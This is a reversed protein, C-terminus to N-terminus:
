RVLVHMNLRTAPDRMQQLLRDVANPDVLDRLAKGEHLIRHTLTLYAFEDAHIGDITQTDPVGLGALDHFNYVEVGLERGLRAMEAEVAGFYRRQDDLGRAFEYIKAAMPPLVLITETQNRRNLAVFQRLQHSPKPDLPGTYAFRGVHDRLVRQFYRFGDAHGYGDLHYYPDEDQLIRGYQHSGDPRYGDAYRAARYGIPRRGGIADRDRELHETVVSKLFKPDGAFMISNAIMNRYSFDDIQEASALKGERDPRPRFWWVDVTLLVLRPRHTVSLAEVFRQAQELSQAAGSANYFRVGPMMAARFQNSRSSGLVLIDPRVARARRLKYGFDMQGFASGFLIDEDSGTVADLRYLENCAALFALQVAALVAFALATMVAVRVVFPHLKRRRRESPLSAAM